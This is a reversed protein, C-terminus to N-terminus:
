PESSDKSSQKFTNLFLIPVPRCLPRHPQPHIRHVHRLRCLALAPVGHQTSDVQERSPAAHWVRAGRVVGCLLRGCEPVSHLLQEGAFLM